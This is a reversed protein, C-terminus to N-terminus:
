YRSFYTKLSSINVLKFNESYDYTLYVTNDSTKSVTEESSSKKAKYSYEINAKVYLNNDSNISLNKVEVKKVTFETLSSSKISSAFSSYASELKDLDSNTYEFDKKFDSFEKGEIANKYLTEINEKITKELDSQKDKALEINSLTTSYSNVNLESTLDLGNKLTITVDYTGKFIAPIKYTDYNDTTKTKYKSPVTVGELKVKSGKHVSITYDKIYLSSNESIKWNDFILMKNSKDKALNITKTKASSSGEVNYKITVTANLGDATINESTITQNIIKNKEGEYVEKFIKKTTFEGKTVGLYDYLKDTDNNMLANFYDEAVKSPKYNNELILYGGVLVVLLAIIIIIINKTKKDIEKTPKTKTVKTKTKTDEEIKEGCFECFEASKKNKKGCKPCFM